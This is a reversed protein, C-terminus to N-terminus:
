RPHRQSGSTSGPEGPPRVWLGTPAPHMTEEVVNLLRAQLDDLDVRDRLGTGFGALTRAADYKRRYFRPDIGTQVRGRLPQFLAPRGPHLAGDGASGTNRGHGAPLRGAAGSRQRFNAGAPLATLASYILTRRIVLDIDYLRYRRIAMAPAIAIGAVTSIVLGLGSALPQDGLAEELALGTVLLTFGPIALSASFAFWKIQQREV